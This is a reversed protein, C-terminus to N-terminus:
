MGFRQKVVQHIFAAIVAMLNDGLLREQHEAEIYGNPRVHQAININGKNQLQAVWVHWRGGFITQLAAINERYIHPIREHQTYAAHLLSVYVRSATKNPGRYELLKDYMRQVEPTEQRNGGRAAAAANPDMRPRM